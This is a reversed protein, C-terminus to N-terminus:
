LTKLGKQIPLLGTQRWESDFKNVEGSSGTQPTWLRWRIHWRQFSGPGFRDDESILHRHKLRLGFPQLLLWAFKRKEVV